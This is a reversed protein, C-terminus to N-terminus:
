KKYKVELGADTVLIHSINNIKALLNEESGYKTSYDLLSLSTKLVLAPNASLDPNLLWGNNRELDDKSAILYNEPQQRITETSNQYILYSKEIKPEPKFSEYRRITCEGNRNIEKVDHTNFTSIEHANNGFKARIFTGIDHDEELYVFQGQQYSYSSIKDEIKLDKLEQREVELWGHGPDSFFNYM